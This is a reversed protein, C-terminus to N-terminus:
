LNKLLLLNFNTHLEILRNLKEKGFSPTNITKVMTNIDTFTQLSVKNVQDNMKAIIQGMEGGCSDVTREIKRM